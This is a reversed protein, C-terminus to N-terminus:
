RSEPFVEVGTARQVLHLIETKLRDIERRQNRVQKGATDIEARLREIEERQDRVLTVIRVIREDGSATLSDLYADTVRM